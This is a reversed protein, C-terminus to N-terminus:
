PTFRKYYTRRMIFNYLRGLFTTRRKSFFLDIKWYITYSNIESSFSKTISKVFEENYSWMKIEANIFFAIRQYFFNQHHPYLKAFGKLMNIESHIGNLRNDFNSSNFQKGVWSNINGVRYVSMEESIYFIHGKMTAMIQLPYDGVHCQQCFSPYNIVLEKRYIISCTSIYLGGRRIVNKTELYGSQKLCISDSLFKNNKESLRNTKNCVMTCDAHSEIIDVQKQLKLPDTWYDDGECIAVYKASNTWKQWLHYKPKRQSYHNEKLYFVLFFCNVNQKHRAYIINAEENKLSQYESDSDLIFNEQM